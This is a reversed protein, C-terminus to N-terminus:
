QFAWTSGKPAVGLDEEVRELVFGRVPEPGGKLPESPKPIREPDQFRPGLKHAM